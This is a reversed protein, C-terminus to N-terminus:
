TGRSAELPAAALKYLLLLIQLLTDRQSSFRYPERKCHLKEYTGSLNIVLTPLAGWSESSFGGRNSM